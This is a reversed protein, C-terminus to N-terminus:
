STKQRKSHAHKKRSDPERKTTLLIRDNNPFKRRDYIYAWKAFASNKIENEAIFPLLKSDAFELSAKKIEPVDFDIKERPVQISPGTIKKNYDNFFCCGLLLGEAPAKPVDARDEGFADTILSTPKSRRAVEVAMGIMKRIQNYLFSQGVVTIRVFEMGEVTVSKPDVTFDMIYRKSQMDSFRLRRTYNHFNHTGVFTALADSLRKMTADDVPGTREIISKRRQAHWKNAEEDTMEACESPVDAVYEADFEGEPVNSSRPASAAQDWLENQPALVFTPLYYIYRRGSCWKRADFKTTTKVIKYVCIPASLEDLHGNVKKVLAAADEEGGGVMLKAAVVSGAAHVGKDTRAARSWKLKKEICDTNSDLVAGASLLAKVLDNEVAYAEPSKQLGQYKSGNYGFLIACKRKPHTREALRGGERTRMEKKGSPVAASSSM